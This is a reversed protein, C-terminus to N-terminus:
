IWVRRLDVDNGLSGRLSFLPLVLLALFPDVLARGLKL